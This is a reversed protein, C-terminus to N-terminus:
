QYVFCCFLFIHSYFLLTTDSFSNEIVMEADTEIGIMGNDIGIGTQAITTITRIVQAETIGDITTILIHHHHHQTDVKTAIAILAEAADANMIDDLLINTPGIHLDNPLTTMLYLIMNTEVNMAMALVTDHESKCITSDVWRNVLGEKCENLFGIRTCNQYLNPSTWTFVATM